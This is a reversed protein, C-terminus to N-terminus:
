NIHQVYANGLFYHIFFLIELNNRSLGFFSKETVFKIKTKISENIFNIKRIVNYLKLNIILDIKKNVKSDEILKLKVEVRLFM